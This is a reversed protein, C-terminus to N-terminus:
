QKRALIQEATMGIEHERGPPPLAGYVIRQPTVSSKEKKVADYEQAVLTEFLNKQADDNVSNDYRIKPVGVGDNDHYDQIVEKAVERFPHVISFSTDFDADKSNFPKTEANPNYSAEVTFGNNGRVTVACKVLKGEVRIHDEISLTYTIQTM